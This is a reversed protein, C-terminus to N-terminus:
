ASPSAIIYVTTNSPLKIKKMNHGKSQIQLCKSRLLALFDLCFAM